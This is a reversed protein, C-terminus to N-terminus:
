RSRRGAPWLDRSRKRHLGGVPNGQSNSIYFFDLVIGKEALGTRMGGWDGLLHQNAPSDVPLVGRNLEHAQMQAWTPVIPMLSLIVTLLVRRGRPHREVNM